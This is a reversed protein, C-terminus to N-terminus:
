ITSQGQCVCFVFGRQNELSTKKNCFQQPQPTTAFNCKHYPQFITNTTYNCFELPPMTTCIPVGHQSFQMQTCCCKCRCQQPSTTRLQLFLWGTNSFFEFTPQAQPTNRQAFHCCPLQRQLVPLEHTSFTHLAPQNTAHLHMKNQCFKACTTCFQCNQACAHAISAVHQAQM